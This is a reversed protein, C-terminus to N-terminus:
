ALDGHWIVMTQECDFVSGGHQMAHMKTDSTTTETTESNGDELCIFITNNTMGSCAYNVNGFSNTYQPSFQGASHDTVSAINLSDDITPTDQDFNMWGKALGQQLNTTATGEGTVLISGATTVGTFKDVKLESAM